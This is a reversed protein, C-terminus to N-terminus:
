AHTDVMMIATAASPTPVRDGERRIGALYFEMTDRILKKVEDLTKGQARLGPLDPSYAGWGAASEEYIVFYKM